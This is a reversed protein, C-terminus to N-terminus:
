QMGSSFGLSSGAFKGQSCVQGYDAEVHSNCEWGKTKAETLRNEGTITVYM